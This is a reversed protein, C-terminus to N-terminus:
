SKSKYDRPPCGFRSKFRTSFYRPSAYGLRYAVESVSLTTNTLLECAKRMKIEEIYDSIGVGKLEKFRAYLSARSMAMHSALSAVGLSPNSINEEIFKDVKELFSAYKELKERQRKERLIGNLYLASICLVILLLMICIIVFLETKYWVPMFKIRGLGIEESWEGNEKYYSVSLDYDGNEMMPLQAYDEFSIESWEGKEGKLSYKVSRYLFPDTDTFWVRLALHHEGSFVILEGGSPQVKHADLEFDKFALKRERGEGGEMVAPDLVFLGKTGGILYSGDKLECAHRIESAPLGISEDLVRMGKEWVHYLINGASFWIHGKEDVSIFSVNADGMYPLRESYAEKLHYLYAGSTTGLYLNDGYFKVNNIRAGDVDVELRSLKHTDTNLLYLSRPGYIVSHSRDRQSYGLITLNWQKPRDFVLYSDTAFDYDYVEDSIILFHGDPLRELLPYEGEVVFRGPKGSRADFICLGKGYVSMLIRHSSLCAISIIKFDFTNPYAKLSMDNQNLVCLGSDTAIWVRGKEDEAFDNIVNSPLDSNLVNFSKVLSESLVYLGSSSSGLWLNQFDDMYLATIAKTPSEFRRIVETDPYLVDVGGGDSGIWLLGECALLSTIRDSSLNSNASSYLISHYDSLSLRLLGKRFIVLYLEEGCLESDLIIESELADLALSSLRDADLRYLGLKKDCLLINGQYEHLGLFENGQSPLEQLEDKERKLIVEDGAFYLVESSECACYIRKSSVQVFDGDIRELRYLGSQAGVWLNQSSDVFLMYVYGIPFFKVVKGQRYENLGCRSGIWVSGYTDCVVETISS